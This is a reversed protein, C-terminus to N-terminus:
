TALNKVDERCSCDASISPVLRMEPCGDSALGFDGLDFACLWPFIAGFAASPFVAVM